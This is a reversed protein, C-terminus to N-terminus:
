SLHDAHGVADVALRFVTRRGTGRPVDGADLVGLLGAEVPDDGPRHQGEEDEAVDEAGADVGEGALDRGVHAPGDPGREQDREQEGQDGREGVQLQDGLVRPGGPGGQVDVPGEVDADEAEHDGDGDHGRAHGRGRERGGPDAAAVPRAHEPGLVRGGHEDGDQDDQQDRGHVVAPHALRDLDVDGDGQDLQGAQDEDDQDPGLHQEAALAVGPLCELELLRAEAGEGADGGARGGGEVTTASDSRVVPGSSSRPASSRRGQSGRRAAGRYCAASVLRRQGLLWGVTSSSSSREATSCARRTLSARSCAAPISAKGTPKWRLWVRASTRRPQSSANSGPWSDSSTTRTAPRITSLRAMPRRAKQVRRWSPASSWTISDALSSPASWNSTTSSRSTPSQTPTWPGTTLVRFPSSDTLAVSTYRSPLARRGRGSLHFPRVSTSTRERWRSSSRATLGAAMSAMRARELTTRDRRSEISARPNRSTSVGIRLGTGPPARARGNTVWWLASSVSRYRRTAQSSYRFRSSAPPTSRTNSSPRTNRLSPTSAVWLVSNVM